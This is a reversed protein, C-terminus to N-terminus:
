SLAIFIISLALRRSKNNLRIKKPLCRAILFIKATSTPPVNVLYATTLPTYEKLITALSLIGVSRFIYDGSNSDYKDYISIYNSGEVVLSLPNEGKYYIGAYKGATFKYGYDNYEYDSLTLTNTEADFSWGEGSTVEDTVETEGIVLGDSLEVPEAAAVTYYISMENQLLFLSGRM